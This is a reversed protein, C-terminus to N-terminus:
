GCVDAGGRAVHVQKVVGGGGSGNEDACESPQGGDGWNRNRCGGGLTGGCLTAIGCVFM